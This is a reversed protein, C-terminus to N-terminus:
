PRSAGREDSMDSEYYNNIAVIKYRFYNVGSPLEDDIYTTMNNIAIEVYDEDFATKRYIKYMTAPLVFTWKLIIGQSPDSYAYYITPTYVHLPKINRIVSDPSKTNNRYAIIKYYYLTKHTLDEDIYTLGSGEFSTEIFPGTESTSRFVKYHTASYVASWHVFVSTGSPYNISMFVPAKFSTRVSRVKSPNTIKQGIVAKVRYCYASDTEVSKDEYYSYQTTGILTYNGGANPARYIQYYTV